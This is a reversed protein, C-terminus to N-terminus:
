IIYLWICNNWYYMSTGPVHVLSIYAQQLFINMSTLKFKQPWSKKPPSIKTRTESKFFWKVEQRYANASDLEDLILTDGLLM